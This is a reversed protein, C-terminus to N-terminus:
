AEAKLRPMSMTGGQIVRLYERSTRRMSHSPMKAVEEGLIENIRGHMETLREGEAVAEAREETAPIEEARIRPAAAPVEDAAPAPAGAVEDEEALIALAAAWMDEHGSYDAMPVEYPEGTSAPAAGSGSVDAVASEHAAPVNQPQVPRATGVLGLSALAAARAADTDSIPSVERSLDATAETGSAAQMFSATTAAPASAPAMAPSGGQMAAERPAAATAPAGTRAASESRSLEALAIEYIDKSRTPDCSIPSDEELLRDIETWAEAESLADAARAIVPVGQPAHSGFIGTRHGGSASANEADPEQADEFRYEGSESRNGVRANGNAALAAMAAACLGAGVAAGIAFPMGGEQILRHPGEFPTTFAFALAPLILGIGGTLGAAIAPHAYKQAAM